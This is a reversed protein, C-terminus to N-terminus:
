LPKACWAQWVRRYVAEVNRAFGPGNMLPSQRMRDRLGARLAALRPIDRALDLAIRVYAQADPAVLESLGLNSLISLGGRGIATQGALTVVPVGMWLADCTTTGGGAPFPDLAIDIKNYARLYDATPLYDAFGVREPSVGQIAFSERM